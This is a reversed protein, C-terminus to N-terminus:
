FQSIRLFCKSGLGSNTCRVFSNFQQETYTATMMIQVKPITVQKRHALVKAEGVSRINENNGKKIMM